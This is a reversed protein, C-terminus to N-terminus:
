GERESQSCPLLLDSFVTVEQERVKPTQSNYKRTRVSLKEKREGKRERKRKRGVATNFTPYHTHSACVVRRM